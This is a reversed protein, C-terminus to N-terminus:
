GAKQQQKAEKVQNPTLAPFPVRRPKTLGYLQARDCAETHCQRCAVVTAKGAMMRRIHTGTSEQKHGAASCVLEFRTFNLAPLQRAVRWHAGICKGTEDAPECLRDGTGPNFYAKAKM